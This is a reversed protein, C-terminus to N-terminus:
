YKDKGDPLVGALYESGADFTNGIIDVGAQYLARVPYLAGHALSPNIAKTYTSTIVGNVVIDGHLTHPNYLGDAWQTSVALVSVENGSADMVSDGPKATQAIALSKNLYLYHDPTLRLVSSSTTIAVVKSKADALRHSFMYVESYQGPAVLVKDGVKLQEMTTQSGDALTV